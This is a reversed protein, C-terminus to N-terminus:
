ATWRQPAPRPHPEGPRRAADRDVRGSTYADRVARVGPRAGAPLTPRRLDLAAAVGLYWLSEYLFTPHFASCTPHGAADPVAHGTGDDIRDIQLGWPLSTPGGFLEQNFWNGWRGLAQALAIGPAVADAFM